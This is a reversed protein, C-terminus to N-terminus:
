KEDICWSSCYTTFDNEKEKEVRFIFEEDKSVMCPLVKTQLANIAYTLDLPWMAKGHALEPIAAVLKLPPLVTCERNPTGILM